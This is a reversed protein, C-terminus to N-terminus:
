GSKELYNVTTILRKKTEQSPIKYTAEGEESNKGQKNYM